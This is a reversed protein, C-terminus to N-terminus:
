KCKELVVFAFAFSGEHTLSVHAAVNKQQVFLKAKGSFEFYPEGTKKRLIQVESLLFDSTFIGTGCAKGFAEKAAFNAAASKYPNTKKALWQQEDKGFVKNVFSQRRMAKEVRECSTLDTGISYIMGRKEKSYNQM